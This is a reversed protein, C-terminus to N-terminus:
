FFFEVSIFMGDRHGSHAHLHLFLQLFRANEDDTRAPEAARYGLVEAGGANAHDADRIIPHDQFFVEVALGQVIHLVNALVLGFHRGAAEKGEVGPVLMVGEEDLHFRFVRLLHELSEVEDYVTRLVAGRVEHHVIGADEVIFGENHPFDM